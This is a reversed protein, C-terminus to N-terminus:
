GAVPRCVKCPRYGASVAAGASRFSRRNGPEIRRANYCTAHCFVGTTPTALYPAGALEGVPVGEGELLRVKEGAGFAYDGTAGDNRIVRHCPILMPVPNRAMVSGVARSAGPSGAERAVWAYPRVEGRPISRVVEMVRRQFPTAWTLDAAAEVKEGALAASVQRSLRDLAEEPSWSLLRGFRERYSRAFEEPADARDLLRVGRESAGVYVRGLPSDCAFLRDTALALSREALGDPVAGVLSSAAEGLLAAVRAEDVRGGDSMCMGGENM